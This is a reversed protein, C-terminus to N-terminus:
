KVESTAVRKPKAAHANPYFRKHIELLRALEKVPEPNDEVRLDVYRDNARAYGGKERVVLLAASQRGRRDGGAAEAAELATALWDALEGQGAARATEFARAMGKVVTEGALLNGQAAFHKGEIQGAWDHCKEGTFSAVRGQADVIGIQRVDRRADNTTLAALTERASKGDALLKLGDPGYAVNAEAQTAIAGIGARAWPVVSGVGFFKSQVAVGLDGTAPDFAVISYTAVLTSPADSGDKKPLAKAPKVVLTVAFTKAAPKDKEFPRKYELRVVAKGEAAATFRAVFMGGSGVLGPPAPARQYAIDGVSKVSPKQADAKIQALSWSYGTTINGALTVTITDGVVAAVVRDADAERLNLEAADVAHALLLALLAFLRKM